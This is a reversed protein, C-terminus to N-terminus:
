HGQAAVRFSCLVEQDRSNVVSEVSEKEALKGICCMRKCDHERDFELANAADRVRGLNKIKEGPLTQQSCRGDM